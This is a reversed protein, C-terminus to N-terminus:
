LGFLACLPRDMHEQIMRESTEAQALAATALKARLEDVDKSDLPLDKRTELCVGVEDLDHPGDDGFCAAAIRKLTDSLTSEMVAELAPRMKDLVTAQLQPQAALAKQFDDASDRVRADAPLDFAACDTPTVDAVTLFPEGGELRAEVPLGAFREGSSVGAAVLADQVAALEPVITFDVVMAGGGCTYTVTKTARGHWPSGDRESVACTGDTEFGLKTPFVYPVCALPEGCAPLCALWITGDIGLLRRGTVDMQVLGADTVVIPMAVGSMAQDIKWAHGRECAARAQARCTAGCAHGDHKEVKKALSLMADVPVLGSAPSLSGRSGDCAAISLVLLVSKM